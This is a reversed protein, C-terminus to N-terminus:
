SHSFSQWNLFFGIEVKVLNAKLCRDVIQSVSHSTIGVRAGCKQPRQSNAILYIFFWKRRSIRVNTILHSIKWAKNVCISLMSFDCNKVGIEFSGLAKVAKVGPCKRITRGIIEVDFSVLFKLDLGVVKLYKGSFIVVFISLITYITGLWQKFFSIIITIFSLGQQLLCRELMANAERVQGSSIWRCRHDHELPQLKFM